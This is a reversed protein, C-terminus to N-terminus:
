GFIPYFAGMGICFVGPDNFRRGCDLAAITAVEEASLEFDFLYLNEQLHSSSSSKPVVSYGRQTAWRLVVQAPTRSHREAIALVEPRSLVSDEATAMDLAVYSGAGLPSFGTVAVGVHACYRVLQDQALFPHLEVQNVQPEIRAVRRLHQLLQVRFNAVGINRALGEDVLGEMAGWTEDITVGEDLEMRPDATDPDHIWEPPYRTEFPVFKLPIPFHVLYLDLYDLGLDQLTRRCAAAVHDKRHYTNWLKSTVWLDARSCVGGVIAARIGKGVAQENGYDCACDIHRYGIRIAEEVLRATDGPPMKWTGLGIVPMRDGTRGLQLTPCGTALSIGSPGGAVHSVLLSLRRGPRAM